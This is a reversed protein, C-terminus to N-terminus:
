RGSGNVDSGSNTNTNTNTNTRNGSRNMRSDSDTRNGKTKRRGSDTGGHNRGHGNGISTDPQQMNTTSGTNSRGGTQTQALAASSILTAMALTISLTKM